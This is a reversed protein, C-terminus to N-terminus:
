TLFFHKKYYQLEAISELIDDVARHKDKKIFIATENESYWRRVLEKITSVDIIRYHLFHATLPMYKVIFARDQWVSNGCLLVSQKQCGNQELLEALQKDITQISLKSKLVKEILGSKQHQNKVWDNMRKLTDSTQYIVGHVPNSILEMADFTTLVAAVELIVDTASDLGTMELDVWLLLSRKEM